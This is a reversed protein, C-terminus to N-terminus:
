YTTATVLRDIKLKRLPATPRQDGPWAWLCTAIVSTSGHSMLPLPIGMIPLLRVVMGVNVTVHYLLLVAFGTSWCGAWESAPTLQRDWDIRLIIFLYGVLVLSGGIFGWEESAVAYIFDNHVEPVFGSLGRPAEV